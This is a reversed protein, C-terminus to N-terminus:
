LEYLAQSVLVAAMRTALISPRGFKSPFLDAYQEDPFLEARHDALFASMGGVSALHGVRRM